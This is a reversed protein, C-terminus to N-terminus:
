AFTVSVSDADCKGPKQRVVIQVNQGLRTLCDILKRESFNRFQGRLLKSLAAHSIGLSTAAQIETMGREALLETFRSVLQAKILMRDPDRYGLDAYVNPGGHIHSAQERM